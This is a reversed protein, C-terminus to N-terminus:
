GSWYEQRSLEMFMSSPLSCGMPNCLTLCSQYVIVNQFVCVNKIIRNLEKFYMQATYVSIRINDSLSKSTHRSGCYLSFCLNEIYILVISTFHLRETMDSEKRGWSSYGALSRQGHSEGPLFVPTPQWKRRWHFHFHLRTRSKAVGHVAAWWTGGDM